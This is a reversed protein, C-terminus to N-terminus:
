LSATSPRIGKRWLGVFGGGFTRLGVKPRCILVKKDNQGNAEAPHGPADVPQDGSDAHEDADSAEAAETPAKGRARPTVYRLDWIRGTSIGEGLEIVKELYIPLNNTQVRLQCEAIQSISPAFVSLKADPLLTQAVAALEEHVDPLDLSAYSLFSGRTEFQERTWTGVRATHFDIHPWYLGQRFGRVIKEAHVSNAAVCDLTHIVARRSERYKAWSALLETQQRAFNSADLLESSPSHFEPVPLDPPAPNASAIARALHMALSGHGTGADLIQLRHDSCASPSAHIDLLDVISAAYSAYI